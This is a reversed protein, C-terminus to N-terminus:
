SGNNAEREGDRSEKSLCISLPPIAPRICFRSRRDRGTGITPLSPRRVTPLIAITSRFRPAPLKSASVSAPLSRSPLRSWRSSGDTFRMPRTDKTAFCGHAARSASPFFSPAATRKDRACDKRHFGGAGGVDGCVPSHAAARLSRNRAQRSRFHLRSSQQGDRARGSRSPGSLAQPGGPAYVPVEPDYVFVDRPEDGEPAHPTLRGDGKRSNANGASHLYLAYDAEPPGNRRLAGNM